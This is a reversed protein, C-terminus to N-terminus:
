GACYAEAMEGFAKYREWFADDSDRQSMKADQARDPDKFFGAARRQDGGTLTMDAVQGICNCLARNAAQRDSRNCASEVPSALAMGPGMVAVLGAFIVARMMQGMARAQTPRVGGEQGRIM